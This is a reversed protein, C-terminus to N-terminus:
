LKLKLNKKRAEVICIPGFGGFGIIGNKKNGEGEGSEM